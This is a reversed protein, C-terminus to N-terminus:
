RGGCGLNLIDQEQLTAIRVSIRRSTFFASAAAPVREMIM